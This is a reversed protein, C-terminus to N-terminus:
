KKLGNEITGAVSVTKKQQEMFAKRKFYYDIYLKGVCEISNFLVLVIASIVVNEM